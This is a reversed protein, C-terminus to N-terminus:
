ELLKLMTKKRIGKFDVVFGGGGGGRGKISSSSRKMENRLAKEERSVRKESFEVEGKTMTSSPDNRLRNESKRLASRARGLSLKKKRVKDNDKVNVKTRLKPFDSM